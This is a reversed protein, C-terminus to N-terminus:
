HCYNNSHGMTAGWLDSGAGDIMAVLRRSRTDIVAVGHTGDLGVYLKKGDPTVIGHDPAGPFDIEGVGKMTALDLVVAKRESRSIAFAVSDFWGTNVSTVDAAGPLTAVVALSETDIISITRSGNNPVLMLQGDATGYARWPEHGVPIVKAAKGKGLDLVTVFDGQEVTAFGLRGSATRTVNTVGRYGSEPGDAPLGAVPITEIVKGQALDVVSVHRASRNSVYLLAGDLSFTMNYPEALGDVTSSVRRQLLSVFAVRGGAVDGVALQYGDPSLQMHDPAIDLRLTSTLRTRLDMVVLSRDDVNSAVVTATAESVVIQGPVVGVDLHAVVRDRESDIVAITTAARSPVFVYRDFDDLSPESRPWAAAAAGAALVAIAGLALIRKRIAM